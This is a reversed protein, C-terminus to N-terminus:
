TPGNTPPAADAEVTVNTAAAHETENHGIGVSGLRSKLEKRARESVTATYEQIQKQASQLAPLLQNQLSQAVIRAKEYSTIDKRDYQQKAFQYQSNAAEQLSQLRQKLSEPLETRVRVFDVFQNLHEYLAGQFKHLRDTLAKPLRQEAAKSYVVISHRVTEQFFQLQGVVTQILPSSDKLKILDDRSRPVASTTKAIRDSVLKSVRQSAETLLLYTRHVHNANPMDKTKNDEAPLYRNLTAELNDIVFGLQRNAERAAAYGPATVTNITGDIRGKVGTIVQKPPAKVADLLHQTPQNIMPFREQLIDLSKCGLKDAMQLQPQLYTQYYSQVYKPQHSSVTNLTSAAKNFAYTALSSRTAYANVTAVSDSVIPISTM